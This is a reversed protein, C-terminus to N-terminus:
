VWDPVPIGQTCAQALWAAADSSERAAEAIGIALPVIVILAFALTFLSALLAGRELRPYHHRMRAYAPGTAVWLIAAWVLAAIFDHLIWLGLLVLAAVLADKAIKKGPLQDPEPTM